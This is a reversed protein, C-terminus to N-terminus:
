SASRRRNTVEVMKFPPGGRTHVEDKFIVETVFTDEDVVRLVIDYLQTHQLLPNYEEGSMVIDAGERGKPGRATVWYTGDEALGIITYEEARRDFGIINMSEGSFSGGQIESRLMLFRGGLIMEGHGIGDAMVPEAGPAPWVTMRVDWEGQLASLAEHEPGPKAVEMMRAALERQKEASIDQGQLPATVAMM